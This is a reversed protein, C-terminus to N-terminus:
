LAAKFLAEIGGRSADAIVRGVESGKSFMVLTSRRVVGLENAIPKRISSDWDVNMVTIAGYEPNSDLLASM